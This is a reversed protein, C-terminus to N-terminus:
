SINLIIKLTDVYIIITEIFCLKNGFSIALIKNRIETIRIRRQIKHTDHYNRKMLPTFKNRM